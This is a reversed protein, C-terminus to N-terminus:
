SKRIMSTVSNCLVKYRKASNYNPSKKLKQFANNRKCIIILQNLWPLNDRQYHGILSVSPCSRLFVGTGTSPPHM